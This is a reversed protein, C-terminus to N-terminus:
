RGHWFSIGFRVGFSTVAAAYDSDGESGKKMLYGVFVETRLSADGMPTRNGFGANLGVRTDSDSSNGDDISTYNIGIGGTLYMGKNAEAGDMRWLANLDPTFSFLSGDKPKVYSLGFRMEWSLASGGGFGIRVDVPTGLLLVGDGGSPKGYQLMADVGLEHKQAQVVGAILVSAAMLGLLRTVARM